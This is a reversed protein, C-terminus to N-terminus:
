SYLSLSDIYKYIVYSESFGKGTLVYLRLLLLLAAFGRGGYGRWGLWLPSEHFLNQRGGGRALREDNPNKATSEDGM